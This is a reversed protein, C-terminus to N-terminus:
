CSSPTFFSATGTQRRRQRTLKPRPNPREPAERILLLLLPMSSPSIKLEMIILEMGLGEPGWLGAPLSLRHCSYHVPIQNQANPYINATLDEWLKLSQSPASKQVALSCLVSRIKQHGKAPLHALLRPLAAGAITPVVPIARHMFCIRWAQPYQLWRSCSRITNMTSFIKCMYHLRSVCGRPSKVDDGCSSCKRSRTFTSRYTALAEDPKTHTVKCEKAKGKSTAADIDTSHDREPVPISSSSGDPLSSRLSSLTTKEMADEEKAWEEALRRALAEDDEMPTDVDEAFEDQLEKALNESAEQAKIQALIEKLEDDEEDSDEIVIIEAPAKNKRARKTSAATTSPEPKSSAAKRKSAGASPMIPDYLYSRLLRALNLCTSLRALTLLYHHQLKHAVALNSSM